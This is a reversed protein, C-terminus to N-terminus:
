AKPWACLGNITKVGFDISLRLSAAECGSAKVWPENAGTIPSEIASGFLTVVTSSQLPRIVQSRITSRFL